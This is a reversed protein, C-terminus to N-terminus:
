AQANIEALVEAVISARDEDTLTYAPGQPGTEGTEGQPGPEGQIGQEGTDGKSGIVVGLNFSSNDSLTIVLEGAGNIEAKSVSVGDKGSNGTDGKDGKDGKEGQAGQKGQVGQIGQIGQDGKDGKPGQAGTDGKEGQPGIDGKSGNLVDVTKTGTVDIITLRYGNEIESVSITPSVGDKGNSGDSVSNPFFPLDNIIM